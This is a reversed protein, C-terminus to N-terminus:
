QGAMEEAIKLGSKEIAAPNYLNYFLEIIQETNLSIVRLGLQRLGIEVVSARQGLQTKKQEFDAFLNNEKANVSNNKEKFGLLSKTKGLLSKSEKIISIVDFPVVVFFSKTMITSDEVLIKIFEMYERLQNRLLENTEAKEREKLVDLYSNINIKRSHIVFQASFDLSNLFNQFLALIQMNEEENKLAVNVGSVALIKRLSGNKLIVIGDKITEIKNFQQTSPIPEKPM